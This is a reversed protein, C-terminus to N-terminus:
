SINNEQLEIFDEFTIFEYGSKKLLKIIKEIKNKYTFIGNKIYYKDYSKLNKIKPARKKSLEFPHIYFVYYDNKQIYLKILTKVFGWHSLRVYGGGSIPYNFAFSKYCPLGFEYFGGKRYINTHVNEFSSIDMDASHVRNKFEIHSSDYRFGLDRILKFHENDLSFFPARYGYIETDFLKELKQKAYSIKDKFDDKKIFIPATHDYGHLALRHGKSICKKLKEEAEIAANYVAFVTARIDHKELLSIYEDFGDLLEDCVQFGSEKVCGTDSFNEFDMTFVAFKKGNSKM